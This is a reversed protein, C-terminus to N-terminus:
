GVNWDSSNRNNPRVTAKWQAQYQASLLQPDRM